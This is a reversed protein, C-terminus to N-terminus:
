ATGSMRQLTALASRLARDTEAQDPRANPDADQRDAAPPADFPRPAGTMALLSGYDSDTEEFVEDPDEGDGNGDAPAHSAAPEALPGAGFALYCDDEDDGFEELEPAFQQLAAPIAPRPPAVPAPAPEFDMPEVPRAEAAPSAPAQRADYNQMSRALREALEAM